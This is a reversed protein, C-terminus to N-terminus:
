ATGVDKAFCVSEPHDRFRGYPAIREWGQAEYLALAEPQALGTELKLRRYGLAAGRAELRALVGRSVGQRRAEPATYMRKIEAVCPEGDFPKLAGCGVAEGNLRAVLFAGLPATLMTATVEEAHADDDAAREEATMGEISHAYRENIDAHMAAVLAVAAAGDYPEEGIEIM